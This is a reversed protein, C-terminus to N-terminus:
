NNNNSDNNSNDISDGLIAGGIGVVGAGLIALPAFASAVVTGAVGLLFGGIISEGGKFSPQREGGSCCTRVNSVNKSNLKLYSGYSASVVPLVRM